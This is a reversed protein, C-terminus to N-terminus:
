KIKGKELIPVIPYINLQAAFQIDIEKGMKILSRGNESISLPELLRSSYTKYLERLALSLDDGENRKGKELLYDILCGAAVSDELSFDGKTGACLITINEGLDLAYKGIAEANLFSGILIHQALAGQRIAKTGNTTTMIIEKNKVNNEKYEWPSNSLDFGAIRERHREGGLLFSGQERKNALSFAEQVTLTPIVGLCGNAIATVINTSARLIDLIIVTKGRLEQPNAQDATLITQILM